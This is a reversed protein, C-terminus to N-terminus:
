MIGMMAYFGTSPLLNLFKPTKFCSQINTYLNPFWSSSILLNSKSTSKRVEIDVALGFTSQYFIIFYRDFIVKTLLYQDGFSNGFLSQFFAEDWWINIQVELLEAQGALALSCPQKWNIKSFNYCSKVTM